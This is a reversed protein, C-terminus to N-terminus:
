ITLRIGTTIMRLPPIAKRTQTEPDFGPYTTFTFLNQGQMYISCNKLGMVHSRAASMQWSLSLNTLRIFSADAFKLNSGNLMDYNGRLSGDQSLRQVITRDGTRQGRKVVAADQNRMTGPMYLTSMGDYIGMQKVFMCSMELSFSRYRFNHQFGGYYEPVTNVPYIRAPPNEPSAVTGQANAFQYAGSSDVGMVQFVHDQTIPKGVPNTKGATLVFGPFQLLKNNNISINFSTSWEFNKTTRNKTNLLIEWGTNRIVAGVNGLMSGAGTIDPLPHDLLQSSSLYHYYTTNLFIRNNLMGIEIGTNFKRTLEWAFDPNNLGAFMIGAVGQYTGGVDQYSDLYKYNGIQDNGTTGYSLRLKGYSLCPLVRKFFNEETFIWGGAIARYMAFQKRPGFRSSGDRRINLNFLLKNKWSYSVRGFVAIYKYPANYYTGLTKSAYQLKGLLVDNTFGFADIVHRRQQMANLTSGAIVELRGWNREFQSFLYPDVIWSGANYFNTSSSGPAKYRNAPATMTIPSTILSNGTLGNYGLSVKVGLWSLPKYTILMHGLLNNVTGNFLPGLLAIEPNNWEYNLSGDKKYALPTNPPLDMNSIMDQGPLFISASTYIGTLLASVQRGPSFVEMSFHMGGERSYFDGPFVTTEHHYHGSLLYQTLMNGGSTTVQAHTYHASRGVLERQWDTYRTTDWSTLDPARNVTPIANDNNFADRRMQLYQHTDLLRVHRAVEGIGHSVNVDVRAKGPKGKKTTIFIVGNAGRSGYIATADADKLVDISEINGTNIFNLASANDGLIHSGLGGTLIPNYPIGDIIYLPLTGNNVSTQGRIQAKVSTGRMGSSQQSLLGAVKGKLANLPDMVPQGELDKAKVSVADSTTLRQTTASYGFIVAEDLKTNVGTLVITMHKKQMLVKKTDYGMFSILLLASLKVNPLTFKGNADTKTGKTQGDIYVSADSLPDGKEDLVTGHVVFLPEEVSLPIPQLMCGQLSITHDTCKAKIGRSGLVASLVEELTKNRLDVTIMENENLTVAAYIFRLGSQEEIEKLLLKLAINTGIITLKGKDRHQASATMSTCLLLVILGSAFFFVGRAPM